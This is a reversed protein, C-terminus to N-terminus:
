AAPVFIIDVFYNTSNFTQTPIGGSSGYRYKGNVTAAATLPGSTKATSFYAATVSYRGQPALYSVTYSTGATLTVPTALQATQWGSATENAFTVTALKVGATSWLNGTHTGGNGSGKFFRIATVTGAAAPTFAVGLEVSSTDAATATTPTETGFLSV